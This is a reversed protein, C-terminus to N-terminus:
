DSHADRIMKTLVRRAAAHDEPDFSSLIRALEVDPDGSKQEAGHLIALVRRTEIEGNSM